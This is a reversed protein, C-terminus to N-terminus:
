YHRHREGGLRFFFTTVPPPYDYYAVPAPLYVPPPGLLVLPPAPMSFALPVSPALPVIPQSQLDPVLKCAAGPLVRGFQDAPCVLYDRAQASAAISLSVAAIAISLAINRM